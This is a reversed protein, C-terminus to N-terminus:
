LDKKKFDDGGGAQEQGIQLFQHFPLVGLCTIRSIYEESLVNCFMSFKEMESGKGNGGLQPSCVQQLEVCTKPWIVIKQHNDFQTKRTETVKMTM